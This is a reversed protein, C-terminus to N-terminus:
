LFQAHPVHRTKPPGKRQELGLCARCFKEVELILPSSQTAINMKVNLMPVLVALPGLDVFRLMPLDAVVELVGFIIITVAVTMVVEKSNQRAHPHVTALWNNLRASNWNIYAPTHFGIKFIPPAIGMRRRPERQSFNQIKIPRFIEVSILSKNRELHVLFPILFTVRRHRAASGAIRRDEGGLAILFVFFRALGEGRIGIHDHGKTKCIPVNGLIKQRPWYLSAPLKVRIRFINTKNKPEVVLPLAHADFLM